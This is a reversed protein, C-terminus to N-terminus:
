ASDPHRHPIRRGLVLGVAVAIWGAVVSMAAYGIGLGPRGHDGLTYVGDILHSFTTFGGLYGTVAFPRALPHPGGTLLYTTLLGMALCGLINVTFTNWPIGSASAPIAKTLLYRAVAGVAGGGAVEVLVRPALAPPAPKARRSRLAAAEARERRYFHHLRQAPPENM